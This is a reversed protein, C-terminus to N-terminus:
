EEISENIIESTEAKLDQDIIEETEPEIIPEYLKWVKFILEFNIKKYKM